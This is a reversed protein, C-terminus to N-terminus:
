DDFNQDYEDVLNVLDDIKDYFAYNEIPLPFIDTDGHKIINLAAQRAAARFQDRTVM